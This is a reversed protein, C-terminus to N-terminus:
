ANNKFIIGLGLHTAKKIMRLWFAALWTVANVISGKSVTTLTKPDSPITISVKQNQPTQTLTQGGDKVNATFATEVAEVGDKKLHEPLKIEEPVHQVNLEPRIEREAMVAM